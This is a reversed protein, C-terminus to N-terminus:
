MLEESCWLGAIGKYSELDVQIFTITDIIVNMENSLWLDGFYKCHKLPPSVSPVSLTQRRCHAVHEIKRSPIRVV